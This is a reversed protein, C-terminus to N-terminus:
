ALRAPRLTFFPNGEADFASFDIRRKSFM